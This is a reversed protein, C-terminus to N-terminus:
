KILFRIGSERLDTHIIIIHNTEPCVYKVCLYTEQNNQKYIYMSYYMECNANIGLYQIKLVYNQM